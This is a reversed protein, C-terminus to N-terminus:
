PVRLSQLILRYDKIYSIIKLCVQLIEIENLIKLIKIKKISLLRMLEDADMSILDQVLIIDSDFLIEKHKKTITTLISIPYLKKNEIYYQLNKEEPYQWALIKLKVCSLM